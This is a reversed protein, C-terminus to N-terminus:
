VLESECDVCQVLVIDQKNFQKIRDALDFVEGGLIPGGIEIILSGELIGQWYGFAPILTFSDFYQKVIEVIEGRNIDETIIRYLM